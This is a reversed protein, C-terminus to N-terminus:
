VPEPSDEPQVLLRGDDNISEVVWGYEERLLLNAACTDQGIMGRKEHPIGLVDCLVLQIVTGDAVAISTRPRTRRAIEQLSRFASDAAKRMEDPNAPDDQAGPSRVSGNLRRVPLNHPSALAEATQRAGETLAYVQRVKEGALRRAARTQAAEGDEGSDPPM